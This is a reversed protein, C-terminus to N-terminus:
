RNKRENRLTRRENRFDKQWLRFPYMKEWNTYTDGCCFFDGNDTEHGTNCIGVEGQEACHCDNGVAPKGKKLYTVTESAYLFYGGVFEEDWFLSLTRKLAGKNDVDDYEIINEQQEGTEGNDWISVITAGMEMFEHHACSGEFQNVPYETRFVKVRCTM